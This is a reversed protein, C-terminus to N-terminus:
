SQSVTQLFSVKTTPGCTLEPHHQSLVSLYEGIVESAVDSWSSQLVSARIADASITKARDQSAVEEIGKALLRPSAEAVVYGTRGQHLINEMAGVRTAVVPTGCALAELAVLGFSEYRSPVVLVDAASYYLPLRKQEIRGAFTVLEQVGLERSLRWLAQHEPTQDGDGGVIVLRRRRHDEFCAMAELLRDIGKLPSFRGVYLVVLGDRDLGLQGRAKSRDVPRFLDLNVGCPVVDVREPIVGCYELLHDREKESAALVRHCHNALHKETAIRLGPEDEGGQIASKVAGLSHFMLLHPARWREQAWLGVRGSLWYHSHILDYEIGELGRFGELARFFDALYAYLALKQMGEDDGAGLHVLRVNEHLGVFQECTPGHLRTFIDVSHGRRGLERSLERIYVSMGGTDKTGLEGVPCSHVSLMAIRLKETKSV